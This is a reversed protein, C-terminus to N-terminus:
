CDWLCCYQYKKKIECHYQSNQPQNTQASQVGVIFQKGKAAKHITDGRGGLVMACVIVIYKSM